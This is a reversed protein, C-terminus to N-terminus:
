RGQILPLFYKFVCRLLAVKLESTTLRFVRAPRGLRDICIRGGHLSLEVIEVSSGAPVAGVGCSMRGQGAVYLEHVEVRELVDLGDRGTGHKEDRSLVSMGSLETLLGILKGGLRFLKQDNRPSAM